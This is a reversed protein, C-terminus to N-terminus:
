YAYRAGDGSRFSRLSQLMPHIAHNPAANTIVPKM